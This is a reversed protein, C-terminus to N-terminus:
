VRNNLKKIKGTINVFGDRNQDLISFAEYFSMRKNLLTKKLDKLIKNVLDISIV